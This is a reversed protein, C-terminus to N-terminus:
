VPAVRGAYQAASRLAVSLAHADEFRLLAECEGEQDADRVVLSVEGSDTVDVSVPDGYLDAVEFWRRAM